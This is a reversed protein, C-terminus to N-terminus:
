LFTTIEPVLLAGVPIRLVSLFLEHKNQTCLNIYFMLTRVVGTLTPACHYIVFLIDRPRTIDTRSTTAAAM